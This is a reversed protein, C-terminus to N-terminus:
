RAMGGDRQTMARAAAISHLQGSGEERVEEVARTLRARDLVTVHPATEGNLFMERQREPSAKYARGVAVHRDDEDARGDRVKIQAAIIAIRNQEIGAAIDPAPSDSVGRSALAMAQAVLTIDDQPIGSRAHAAVAREAEDVPRAAGTALARARDAHDRTLPPLYGAGTMSLSDAVYLAHARGDRPIDRAARESLEMERRADPSAMTGHRIAQAVDDQQDATLRHYEGRARGEVLAALDGGERMAELVNRDSLPLRKARETDDLAETIGRAQMQVSLDGILRSVSGQAPDAGHGAIERAVASHMAKWEATGELFHLDAAPGGSREISVAAAAAHRGIRAIDPPVGDGTSFAIAVVGKMAITAMAATQESTAAYIFDEPM